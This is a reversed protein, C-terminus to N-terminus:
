DPKQGEAACAWKLDREIKSTAEAEAAEQDLEDALERLATKLQADCGDSCLQRVKNARQRLTGPHSIAM